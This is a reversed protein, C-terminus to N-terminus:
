CRGVAKHPDAKMAGAHAAWRRVLGEVVPDLPRKPRFEPGAQPDLSNFLRGLLLGDLLARFLRLPGKRGSESRWRDWICAEACIACRLTPPEQKRNPWVEPLRVRDAM